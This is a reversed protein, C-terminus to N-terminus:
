VLACKVLRGARLGSEVAGDIFGRWGSAWDSNAFVLRGESQQLQTLYRGYQGPRYVCWTGRSFPDLNWQYGFVRKVHADPIFRRIAMQVNENDNVDLFEPSPGFSIIHTDGQEVGASFMYTIPQPETTPATVAFNGHTGEIIAHFKTGAGSHTEKSAALKAASLQPSFEVDKLVNMPLTIVAM